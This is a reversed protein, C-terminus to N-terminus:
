TSVTLAAKDPKLQQTVNRAGSAIIYAVLVLPYFVFVVNLVSRSAYDWESGASLFGINLIIYPIGALWSSGRTKYIVERVIGITLGVMFSFLVGGVAGFNVYGFLNHKANTQTLVDDGNYLKSMQLGVHMQLDEPASIRLFALYEKLVAKIPGKDDLTDVTNSPYAYIFADGNNVFRLAAQDLLSLNRDGITVDSIQVQAILLFAGVAMLFIRKLLGMLHVNGAGGKGSMFIYLAAVFVLTLISSKAGSLIQMVALLLLCGWERWNWGQRRHIELLYYFVVILLVDLIRSVFGLGEGNQYVEMRNELFLPIGRTAYVYLNLAIYLFLSLGFLVRLLGNDSATQVMPVPAPRPRVLWIGLFLAAESWLYHSLHRPEILEFLGMFMVDTLCFTETVIILYFFPDFISSIRKRFCFYLVLGNVSLLAIFIPLNLLLLIYFEAM